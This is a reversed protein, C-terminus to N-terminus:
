RKIKNDQSANVSRIYDSIRIEAGNCWMRIFETDTLFEQATCRIREKKSDLDQKTRYLVALSLLRLATDFDIHPIKTGRKRHTKKYRKYKKPNKKYRKKCAELKCVRCVSSRGDKKDPQLFFADRPKVTLCHICRLTSPSPNRCDLCLKRGYKTFVGCKKCKLNDDMFLARNNLVRALTLCYPKHLNKNIANSKHM